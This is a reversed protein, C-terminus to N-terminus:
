AITRAKALKKEVNKKIQNLEELKETLRMVEKNQVSILSKLYRAVNNCLSEIQWDKLQFRKEGFATTRKYIICPTYDADLNQFILSDVSEGLFVDNFEM